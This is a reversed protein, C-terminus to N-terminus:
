LSTDLVTPFRYKPLPRFFWSRANAAHLPPRSAPAPPSSPRPSWGRSVVTESADGRSSELVRLRHADFSCSRVRSVRCRMARSRYDVSSLPPDVIEITDCRGRAGCRASRRTLSAGRPTDWRVTIRPPHAGGGGAGGAGGGGREGREGRGRGWGPQSPASPVGFEGGGSRERSGQEPPAPRRAATTM